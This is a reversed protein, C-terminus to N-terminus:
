LGSVNLLDTTTNEPTDRIVGQSATARLGAVIDRPGAKPHAQLYLAAAGSVHATAAQTGSRTAFRGGPLTSRIEVGPAYGEVVEGHNSRRAAMDRPGSSAVTFVGEASAPSVENADGNWDGAAAALFVGSRTVLNHAAENLTPDKPGGISMNAVAPGRANRAVWEMGALIDGTSGTGDDALVKVGVLRARPAVGHGRSGVIGAAYTGHGNGDFGNGGTADFGISARGGFGPHRPDIGSDIVYATIGEGHHRTRFRGDLPLKEQDIRDLGWPTDAREVSVEPRLRYQQSRAITRVASEGRARYLEGPDMTTAFGNLVRTFTHDVPLGLDAAVAAPEAGEHLTVVYSGDAGAGSGIVPALDRTEAGYAPAATLLVAAVSAWVGASLVTKRM